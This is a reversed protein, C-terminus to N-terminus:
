PTPMKRGCIMLVLPRELDHHAEERRDGVDESSRVPLFIPLRVVAQPTAATPSAAETSDLLRRMASAAGVTASTPIVEARAMKQGIGVPEQAADTGGGAEGEAYRRLITSRGARSTASM